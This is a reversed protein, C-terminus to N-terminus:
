RHLAAAPAQHIWNPGAYHLHSNMLNREHKLEVIGTKM